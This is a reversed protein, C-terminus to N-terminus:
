QNLAEKILNSNYYKQLKYVHKAYLKKADDQTYSAAYPTAEQIFEREVAELQAYWWNYLTNNCMLKQVQQQNQGKQACYSLWWDMLLMEYDETTMKLIENITKM